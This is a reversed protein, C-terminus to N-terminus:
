YLPGVGAAGPPAAPMLDFPAYSQADCADTQVSYRSDVIAGNKVFLAYTRQHGHDQFRVCTLWCWGKFSHVWRAGSIEFMSYTAHDKFTTKLHDAILKNDDPAASSPSTEDRPLALDSCGALM